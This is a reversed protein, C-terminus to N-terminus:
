QCPLRQGRRMLLPLSSSPSSPTRATALPSSSSSSSSSTRTLGREASRAASLLAALHTIASCQLTLPTAASLHTTSLAARAKPTAAAASRVDRARRLGTPPVLVLVLVRVRVRVRTTAGALPRPSSRTMVASCRQRVRARRQGRPARKLCPPPPPPFTGRLFNAPRSSSSSASTPLRSM